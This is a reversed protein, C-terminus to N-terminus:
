KLKVTWIAYLPKSNPVSFFTINIIKLRINSGTLQFFFLLLLFFISIDKSENNIKKERECGGCM